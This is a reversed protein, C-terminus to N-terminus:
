KEEKVPQSGSKNEMFWTWAMFLGEDLKDIASYNFIQDGICVETDTIYVKLGARRAFAFLGKLIYDCDVKM